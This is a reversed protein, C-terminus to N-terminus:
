GDLGVAAIEFFFFFDLGVAMGRLFLYGFGNANSAKVELLCIV